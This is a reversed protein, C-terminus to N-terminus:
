RGKFTSKVFPIPLLFEQYHFEVQPIEFGLFLHQLLAASLIVAYESFEASAAPSSFM